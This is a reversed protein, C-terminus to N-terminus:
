GFHITMTRLLRVNIVNRLIVLVQPSLIGPIDLISWFFNEVLAQNQYLKTGQNRIYTGFHDIRNLISIVRWRPTLFVSYSKFVKIKVSHKQVYFYFILSKIISFNIESWSFYGKLLFIM